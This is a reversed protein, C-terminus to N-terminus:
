RDTRTRGRPDEVEIRVSEVGQVSEGNIEVYTVAPGSGDFAVRMTGTPLADLRSRGDERMLGEPVAVLDALPIGRVTGAVVWRDAAFDFRYGERHCNRDGQDCRCSDAEALHIRQEPEGRLARSAPSEVYRIQQREAQAQRIREEHAETPVRSSSWFSRASEEQLARMAGRYSEMLADQIMSPALDAPVARTGPTVFRRAKDDWDLEEHQECHWSQDFRYCQCPVEVRPGAGSFAQDVILQFMPRAYNNENRTGAGHQPVLGRAFTYQIGLESDEQVDSIETQYHMDLYVEIEEVLAEEYKPFTIKM